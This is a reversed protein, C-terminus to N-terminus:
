QGVKSWLVKFQDMPFGIITTEDGEFTALLHERILPEQIGYAGAKDYPGQPPRLRLYDQIAVTTSPSSTRFTVSAIDTFQYHIKKAQDALVMATAVFHTKGLHHTLMAQAEAKNTPKGLVVLPDPYYVLTDATIVFRTQPKTNLAFRMKELALRLCLAEASRPKAPLIDDPLAIPLSVMHPLYSELLAKRRPSQSALWVSPRLSLLSAQSLIKDIEDHLTQIHM